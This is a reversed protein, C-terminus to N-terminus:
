DNIQSEKALEQERLQNIRKDLGQRTINLSAAVDRKMEGGALRAIAARIQDDSVQKKAGGTRGRARAAALGSLTRERILEREMEAFAAMVGFIFRGMPNRTDIDMSLIKLDCGKEHLAKLTQAVEVLSRGLRDISQVVLLDGVRLDRWCAKWGPRDMDRGSAKDEWIDRPDVGFRVLEDKQRRNDQDSMSVRVYGVMHRAKNTRDNETSKCVKVMIYNYEYNVHGAVDVIFAVM